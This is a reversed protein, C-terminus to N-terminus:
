GTDNLFTAEAAGEECGKLNDTAVVRAAEWELTEKAFGGGVREGATM